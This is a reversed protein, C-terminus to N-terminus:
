QRNGNNNLLALQQALYASTSSMRAILTDLATFQRRYADMRADIRESATEYQKRIDAIQRDMNNRAHELLGDSRTFTAIAQELRQGLGDPGGLLTGVDGSHTALAKELDADNLILHGDKPNTTIGLDALSALAHGPQFVNIAQRVDSQLRRGLSDAGLAGSRGTEPDVGALSGLTTHLANYANVFQRVATQAASRDHTISLTAGQDSVSNLTLSVGDIVDDLVNSAHTIALGNISLRADQAPHETMTEPTGPDGGFSLLDYLDANDVVTISQIAAQTGTARTSLMMRWPQDADGDKVMTAQVGLEEDDNILSILGDLSTATDPLSLTHSRGDMFSFTIQGGAAIATQRDAVGPAFLTQSSALQEVRVRYHVSAPEGTISASFTQTDTRAKMASYVSDDALTGTANQLTELANKLSGYASLRNEAQLQRSQILGLAQNENKRLDTLLQDLPMGSGVGISSITM